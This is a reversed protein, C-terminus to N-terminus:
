PLKTILLLLCEGILFLVIVVGVSSSYSATKAYLDFVVIFASSFSFILLTSKHLSEAVIKFHFQFSFSFTFKPISM